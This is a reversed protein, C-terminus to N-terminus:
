HRNISEHWICLEKAQVRVDTARFHYNSLGPDDTYPVLELVLPKGQHTVLMHIRYFNPPFKDGLFSVPHRGTVLCKEFNVSTYGARGFKPLEDVLRVEDEHYILDEKGNRPNDDLDVRYYRYPPGGLFALYFFQPPDISIGGEPQFEECERWKKLRPDDVSMARAVPEVARVNRGVILDTMLVGCYDPRVGDSFKFKVTRLTKQFAALKQKENKFQHSEQADATDPTALLIGAAILLGALLM